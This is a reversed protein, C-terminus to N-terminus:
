RREMAAPCCEYCRAPFRLPLALALVATRVRPLPHGGRGRRSRGAPAVPIRRGASDADRFRSRTYSLEVDAHFREDGFWYLGLEAGDRRGPRSAETNGADGVFLLESDLRLTWWVLTAQLRDSLHLRTGLEAGISGVLPDVREAPDATVPDVRITTGRADGSHFGTGASAYWELTDSPRYILSGKVSSRNAGADDSNAALCSDVQFDYRGQRVGFYSRWRDNFRFENALFVGLSGVEVADNHVTGLRQRAHTRFLGLRDIDDFRGEIGFRWRSRGCQWRQSLSFGFRREDLQEFQDGNV